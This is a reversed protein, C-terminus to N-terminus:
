ETAEEPHWRTLTERIKTQVYEIANSWDDTSDNDPRRHGHTQSVAHLAGDVSSHYSDSCFYEQGAWDSESLGISSDSTAGTYHSTRLQVIHRAAAYISTAAHDGPAEHKIPEPPCMDSPMSLFEYGDTYKVRSAALFTPVLLLQNEPSPDAAWQEMLEVLAPLKEDHDYRAEFIPLMCRSLAALMVGAALRDPVPRDEFNRKFNLEVLSLLDIHDALRKAEARWYNEPLWGSFRGDLVAAVEMADVRVVFSEALQATVFLQETSSRWCLEGVKRGDSVIDVTGPKPPIVQPTTAYKKLKGDIFAATSLCNQSPPPVLDTASDIHQLWRLLTASAGDITGHLTSAM